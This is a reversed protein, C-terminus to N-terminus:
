KILRVVKPEKDKETEPYAFIRLASFGRKISEQVYNIDFLPGIRDIRSIEMKLWTQMLADYQPKDLLTTGWYHYSNGSDLIVGPINFEDAFLMVLEKNDTGIESAFDMMPIHMEIGNSLKVKSGVAVIDGKAHYMSENIEPIEIIEDDALFNANSIDSLGTKQFATKRPLYILRQALATENEYSNSWNPYSTISFASIDTYSRLIGRLVQVGNDGIKIHDPTPIIQEGIKFLPSQNYIRERM